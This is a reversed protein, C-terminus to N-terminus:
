ASFPEVSTPSTSGRTASTAPSMVGTGPPPPGSVMAMSIALVRLAHLIRRPNLYDGHQAGSEGPAHGTPLGRDRFHKRAQSRIHELCVSQGMLQITRAPRNIQFQHLMKTRLDDLCIFGDLAPGPGLKRVFFFGSAGM